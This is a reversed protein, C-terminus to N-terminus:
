KCGPHKKPWPGTKGKRELPEGCEECLHLVEDGDDGDEPPTLEEDDDEDELDDTDPEAGSPVTDALGPGELTSPDIGSAAALREVLTRLRALESDQDTGNPDAVPVLEAARVQKKIEAPLPHTFGHVAGGDRHQYYHIVPAM